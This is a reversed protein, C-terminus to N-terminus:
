LWSDHIGHLEIWSRHHIQGINVALLLRCCLRCPLDIHRLGATHSSALRGL